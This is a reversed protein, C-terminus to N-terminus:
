QAALGALTPNPLTVVQLNTLAGNPSARFVSITEGALSYLYTSNRSLALDVANAPTSGAAAALLQLSGDPEVSYVSISRSQANAVYALKGDNSVVLWCAARQTDSVAPSIVRLREGSLKYSSSSGSGAESVVVMDNHAFAFGFPTGGASPASYLYRLGGGYEFVDLTNSTRNTVILMEGHDDFAVEAPATGQVPAIASPMAMLNGDHSLRFGAINPADGANLVFVVDGHTTLSTPRVGGSLVSSRWILGRETAAFVTVDNSGANVALVWHGDNTVAVAGQSGLGAGTGFGGTPYLVPSGLTGEDSRPFAVVANGAPSNTQSYVAGASQAHAFPAIIALALCISFPKM